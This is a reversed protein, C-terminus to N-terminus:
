ARLQLSYKQLGQLYTVCSLYQGYCIQLVIMIDYCVHRSRKLQISYLILNHKPNFASVTVLLTCMLYKSKAIITVLYVFVYVLYIVFTYSLVFFGIVKHSRPIQTKFTDIFFITTLIIHWSQLNAFSHLAWLKIHFWLSRLSLITLMSPQLQYSCTSQLVQLFM